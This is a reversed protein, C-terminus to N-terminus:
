YADPTKHKMNLANAQTIQAAVGVQQKGVVQATGSESM